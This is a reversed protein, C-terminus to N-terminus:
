TPHSDTKRCAPGSEANRGAPGRRLIRPSVTRADYAMHGLGARDLAIRWGGFRGLLTGLDTKSNRKFDGVTLVPKGVLEAVRRIEDLLDDDTYPLRRNRKLAETPGGSYLHGLGARELTGKWNGFRRAFTALATKSHNRFDQYTLMPKKVLAAVRRIEELMAEDLLRRPSAASRNKPVNYFMHGLGARELAGRWTGFRRRIAGRYIGTLRCFDEATLMPTDVLGAVRRVEDLFQEESYAADVARRPRPADEYCMHALGARELAYKWSGFRNVVTAGCVMALRDFDSQILVPKGVLDAIRRLEELM